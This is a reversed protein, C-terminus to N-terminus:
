YDLGASSAKSSRSAVSVRSSSPLAGSGARARFSVRACTLAASLRAWRRFMVSLAVPLHLLM